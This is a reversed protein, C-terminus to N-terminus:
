LTDKSHAGRTASTTFLGVALASSLCSMCTRDRPQSSGMSSPMAVWELIRAQLIGHDSSGPLSDDIPNCLTTCSQLSQACVDKSYFSFSGLCFHLFSIIQCFYLYSFTFWQFIPSVIFIWSILSVPLIIHPRFYMYPSQQHSLCYLM